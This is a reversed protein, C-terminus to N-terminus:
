KNDRARKRQEAIARKLDETSVKTTDSLVSGKMVDQIAREIDAHSLRESIAAVAPFDVGTTSFQRLELRLLKEIESKTPRPFVVIDDFRRWLASDLLREHNTAALVLGPSRFADLMQLFSNVVRKLEGHEEASDRSKGIADFEDFFLVAPRSQAYQFVKSLNAATEGLYSSVVADFRVLFVPLLLEAALAEVTVTKGCGPPGWFLVKRRPQLGHGRLLDQQRNEIVIRELAFRISPRLVVEDFRRTPEFGHILPLGREDVPIDRPSFTPLLSLDRVSNSDHGNRVIRRIENALLNHNKRKEEQVVENVAEDFALDDGATHAAILRRLLEGTTKMSTDRETDM